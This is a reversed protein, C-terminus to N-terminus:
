ITNKSSFKGGNAITTVQPAVAPTIFQGLNIGGIGNILALNLGGLNLTSLDFTNFVGTQAITLLTQLQQFQLIANLDFAQNNFLGQFQIVNLNNNLGLRQLLALDLSNVSQLYRLDQQKLNLNNVKGLDIANRKEVEFTEDEPEAAPAAVVVAAFVGALLTTFKMIITHPNYHLISFVPKPILQLSHGILM